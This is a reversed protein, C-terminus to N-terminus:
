YMVFIRIKEQTEISIGRKRSPVTEIIQLLSKFNMDSNLLLIDKESKAPM